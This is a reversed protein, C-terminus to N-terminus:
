LRVRSRLVGRAARWGRLYGPPNFPHSRFKTLEPFRGEDELMQAAQSKEFFAPDRDEPPLGAQGKLWVEDTLQQRSVHLYQTEFEELLREIYKWMAEVPEYLDVDQPDTAIRRLTGRVNILNDMEEKYCSASSHARLRLRAIHVVDNAATIEELKDLWNAREL